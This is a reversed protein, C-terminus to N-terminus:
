DPRDDASGTGGRSRSCLFFNFFLIARDGAHANLAIKEVPKVKIPDLVM